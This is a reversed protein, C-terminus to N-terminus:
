WGDDSTDPTTPNEIDGWLNVEKEEYNPLHLGLPPLDPHNPVDEPIVIKFHSLFDLASEFVIAKHAPDPLKARPWFGEM